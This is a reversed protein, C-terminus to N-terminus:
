IFKAHEASIMEMYKKRFLSKETPTFSSEESLLANAEALVQMLRPQIELLRARTKIFESSLVQVGEVFKRSWSASLNEGRQIEKQVKFVLYTNRVVKDGLRLAKAAEDYTLNATAVTEESTAVNGSSSTQIFTTNALPIKRENEFGDDIAFEAPVEATYEASSETENEVFIVLYGEQLYNSGIAQADVAVLFDNVVLQLLGRNNAEDVKDFMGKVIKGIGLAQGVVGPVLGDLVSKNAPANLVDFAVSFNDSRKTTAIKFTLGFSDMYAPIKVLVNLVMPINTNVRPKISRKDLVINPEETSTIVLGDPHLKLGAILVVEDNGGFLRQLITGSSLYNGGLFIISFYSENKIILQPPGKKLPIFRLFSNVKRPM